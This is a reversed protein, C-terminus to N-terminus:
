STTRGEGTARREVMFTLPKFPIEMISDKKGLLIAAQWVDGESFSTSCWSCGVGRCECVASHQLFNADETADNDDNQGQVDENKAPVEAWFKKLHIERQRANLSFWRDPSMQLHLFEDALAYPGRNIM